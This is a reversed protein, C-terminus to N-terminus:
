EKKEAKKAILWDLASEKKETIMQEFALDTMDGLRKLGAPTTPKKIFFEKFCYKFQM